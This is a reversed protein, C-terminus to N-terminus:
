RDARRALVVFLTVRQLAMLMAECGLLGPCRVQRLYEDGEVDFFVHLPVSQTRSEEAALVDALDLPARLDCLVDPPVMPSVPSDIECLLRIFFHMILILGILAAVEVYLAIVPRLKSKLVRHFASVRILCVLVGDLVDVLFM